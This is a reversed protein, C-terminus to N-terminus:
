HLGQNYKPSKDLGRYQKPTNGQHKTKGSFGKMLGRSLGMAGGGLIAPLANGVSDIFLKTKRLNPNKKYLDADMEKVDADAKIGKLLARTNAESAAAAKATADAQKGQQGMLGQQAKATRSEQTKSEDWSASGEPGSTQAQQANVATPQGGAALIRNLGAAELSHVKDQYETRRARINRNFQDKAATKARDNARNGFPDMPNFGLNIGFM